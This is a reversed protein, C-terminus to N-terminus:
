KVVWTYQEYKKEKWDGMLDYYDDKSKITGKVDASILFGQYEPEVKDKEWSIYYKDSAISGRTIGQCDDFHKYVSCWIKFSNGWTGLNIMKEGTNVYYQGDIKIVDRGNVDNHDKELTGDTISTEIGSFDGIAEPSQEYPFYNLVLTKINSISIIMVFAILGHKIRTLYRKTDGEDGLMIKFVAVLIMLVAAFGSLVTLYTTVQDLTGM